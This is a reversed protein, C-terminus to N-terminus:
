LSGKILADDDGVLIMNTQTMMVDASFMKKMRVLLMAMFLRMMLSM